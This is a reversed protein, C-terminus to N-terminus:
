RWGSLKEDKKNMDIVVFTGRQKEEEMFWVSLVLADPYDDHANAKDPHHLSMSGNYTYQYQMEAIQWILKPEDPIEIKKQEFM